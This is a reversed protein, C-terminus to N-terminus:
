NTGIVQIVDVSAGPAILTVNERIDGLHQRVAEDTIGPPGYVTFLVQETTPRIRTRRDPGYIICSIVDIEDTIMMDGVKMAQVEGNLRVYSESGNAVDIRLPAEISDLDHGATLLFNKLEAMFMAEVLAAVSPISRDKFLLSELQHQVHYTKGFKRYYADYANLVPVARLSKRDDSAFQSRLADELEAKKQDLRPHRQPNEVGRMALVGVVAGPYELKWTSSVELM